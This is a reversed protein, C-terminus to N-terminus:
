NISYFKDEKWKQPNRDIYQWVENYDSENRIIHDYFSRQFIAKGIEKTVLIKFSKILSSVTPSSAWMTGNITIIMHIHNPMI